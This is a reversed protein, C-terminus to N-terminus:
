FGSHRIDFLEASLLIGKLNKARPGAHQLPGGTLSSVLFRLRISEFWWTTCILLGLANIDVYTGVIDELKQRDEAIKAALSRDEKARDDRRRVVGVAALIDNQAQRLQSARARAEPNCPYGREDYQQVYEAARPVQQRNRHAYAGSRDSSGQDM